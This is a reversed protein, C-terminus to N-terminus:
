LTLCIKFLTGPGPEGYGGTVIFTRKDALILNSTFRMPMDVSCLLRGQPSLQHIAGMGYHAVWINGDNDLALGDPLNDQEKGSSHAPLMAFVQVPYKAVGPAQLAITIIRNQYSEAIYLTREDESLVIGNPYDLKDAIIGQTGDAGVCFVKGEKRVSDTFYINGEKDLVLDNPIGVDNGACHGKIEERLLIGNASFRRVAGLESDCVLHDGNPLVIQGNPCPSRAWEITNGSTDTKLIQGGRLNTFYINGDGDVAPGETYYPQDSIKEVIM